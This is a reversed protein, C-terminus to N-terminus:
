TFYSGRVVGLQYTARKAWPICILASGEMDVRGAAVSVQYIHTCNPDLSVVHIGKNVLVENALFDDHSTHGDIIFIDGSRAITAWYKCCAEWAYGEMGGSKTCIVLYDDTDEVSNASIDAGALIFIPKGLPLGDAAGAALMSIHTSTCSELVALRKMVQYRPGIVHPHKDVAQVDSEDMNFIRGPPTERIGVSECNDYFREGGARTPGLLRSAKTAEAVRKSLNPHRHLFRRAHGRSGGGDVGSATHVIKRLTTRFERTKMANGVFSRDIIRQEFANELEPPLCPPRGIHHAATDHHIWRDKVTWTSVGTWTSVASEWGRPAKMDTIANFVSVWDGEDMHVGTKKRPGLKEELFALVKASPTM